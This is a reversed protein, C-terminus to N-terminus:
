FVSDVYETMLDIYNIDVNPITFCSLGRVSFMTYRKTMSLSTVFGDGGDIGDVVTFGVPLTPLAKSFDLDYFYIIGVTGPTKFGQWSGGVQPNKTSLVALLYRSDTIKALKVNTGFYDYPNQYAGGVPFIDFHPNYINHYFASNGTYLTVKGNGATYGDPESGFPSQSYYWQSRGAAILYNNSYLLSDICTFNENNGTWGLSNWGDGSIKRVSANYNFSTYIFINNQSSYGDELVVLNQPGLLKFSNGWYTTQYGQYAPVGVRDQKFLNYPGAGNSIVKIYPQKVTTPNEGGTKWAYAYQGDAGSYCSVISGAYDGDEEGVRTDIKKGTSANYIHVRGKKNDNNTNDSYEPEGIIHYNSCVAVSKGYATYLSRDETNSPDPLDQNELDKHYTRVVKNKAINVLYAAGKVGDNISPYNYSSALSRDHGVTANPAGVLCFNNYMDLSSGFESLEDSPPGYPEGVGNINSGPWDLDYSVKVFSNSIKYKPYKISFLNSNGYLIKEGLVSNDIANFGISEWGSGPRSEQSGGTEFDVRDVEIFYDDTIVNIGNLKIAM